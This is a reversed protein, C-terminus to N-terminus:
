YAALDIMRLTQPDSTLDPRPNPVLFDHSASCPCIPPVPAIMPPLAARSLFRGRQALRRRQHLPRATSPNM